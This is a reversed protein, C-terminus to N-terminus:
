RGGALAADLAAALQALPCESQGSEARLPKM